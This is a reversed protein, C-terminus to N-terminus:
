FQPPHHFDNVRDKVVVNKHSTPQPLLKLDQLLIPRNRNTQKNKSVHTITLEKVLIELKDGRVLYEVSFEESM